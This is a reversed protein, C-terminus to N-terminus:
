ATSREYRQHLGGVQSIAAARGLTRRNFQGHSQRTRTLALHPRTRHYSSFIGPCRVDQYEDVLVHRHRLRIARRITENTELLLTPRMILDGFDVAEKKRLAEEYLDYIKAVELCKEAAILTKEDKAQDLMIQALERYRSPNTMEDKARSIAAVIERLVMAPDWLNRFHVIPLTPLIEEIVEIADSRDFLAPDPPLAFEQHYRRVLDLGFAHFTGIWIRESAAPVSSALRESLEGAARNSFTLILIAAPDIGEKLLSQVPKELTRTKGTGPGAQLQFASGLHAAARDQSPDEKLSQRPAAGQTASSVPLLLADFLQQRILNKYLGTKAAIATPGLGEEIHLRRGM